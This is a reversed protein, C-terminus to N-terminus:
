LGSAERRVRYWRASAQHHMSKRLDFTSQPQHGFWWMRHARRRDSPEPKMTLYGDPPEEPREFEVELQAFGIESYGNTRSRAQAFPLRPPGCYFRQAETPCAIEYLPDLGIVERLANVFIQLDTFERPKGARVLAKKPTM